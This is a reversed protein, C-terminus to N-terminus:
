TRHGPRMRAWRVANEIENHTLGLKRVKRRAIALHRSPKAGRVPRLVVTGGKLSVDFYETEPLGEVIRKPLTVQNKSTKKALMKKVGHSFSIKVM